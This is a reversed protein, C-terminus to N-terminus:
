WSKAIVIKARFKKKSIRHWVSVDSVVSGRGASAAVMGESAPAERTRARARLVHLSAFFHYVIAGAFRLLNM